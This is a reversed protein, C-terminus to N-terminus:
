IRLTSGRAVPWVMQTDQDDVLALVAQRENGRDHDAQAVFHDRVLDVDLVDRGHDHQQVGRDRM